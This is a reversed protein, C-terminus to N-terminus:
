IWCMEYYSCNNCYPKQSKEPPKEKEIIKPITNIAEEIEKEIEPTLDLEEKERRKPYTLIARAEVGKKNQLYWLYYYLQMKAPKILKNSKKIEFILIDEESKVSFDISITNDILVNKKKRKFFEEHIRRGIKINEDYDDLNINHAFFWLERKCTFYYQIMVGTIKKNNNIYDEINM